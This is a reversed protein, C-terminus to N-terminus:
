YFLGQLIRKLNQKKKKLKPFIKCIGKESTQLHIEVETKEYGPQQIHQRYITFRETLQGETQGDLINRIAVM